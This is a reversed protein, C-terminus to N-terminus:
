IMAAGHMIHGNSRCFNKLGAITGPLPLETSLSSTTVLLLNVESVLSKIKNPACVRAHMCTRHLHQCSLEEDAM